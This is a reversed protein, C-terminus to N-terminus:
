DVVCGPIVPVSVHALPTIFGDIRWGLVDYVIELGRGTGEKTVVDATPDACSGGAAAVVLVVEEGSDLNVAQFPVVDEPAASVIAPDRLLGLGNWHYDSGVPGEAASPLGLITIPLPSTNRVSVVYSFAEGPAVRYVYREVGREDWWDTTEDAVVGDATVASVDPGPAVVSGAVVKDGQSWGGCQALLWYGFSVNVVAVAWSVLCGKSMGTPRAGPTSRSALRTMGLGKNALAVFGFWILIPGWPVGFIGIDAFGGGPDAASWTMGSPAAILAQQAAFFRPGFALVLGAAMVAVWPAVARALRVSMPRLPEVEDPVRDLRGWLEPPVGAADRRAFAERIALEESGLSM